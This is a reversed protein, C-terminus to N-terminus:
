QPGPLSSASLVDDALKGAEVRERTIQEFVYFYPRPRFITQGKADLVTEGPHTLRLTDSILAVNRTNHNKFPPDGTVLMFIQGLLVPALFILPPLFRRCSEALIVLPVSLALCALPFFPLYDQKSILPWFTFLIPCYFGVVAFFFLQSLKTNRSKRSRLLLAGGGLAFAFLWFRIDHTRSLFRDFSGRGPELNHTIVCYYLQNLAGHAAFFALVAGPLIILGSLFAFFGLLYERLSAKSKAKECPLFQAWILTVIAAVVITLLLFATKMSVTFAFGSVLGLHFFRVPRLPGSVLLYLIWLWLATWFLDPRYEGLNLYLDPFAAAVLMGWLGVRPSFLRAGLRFLLFLILGHIPLM